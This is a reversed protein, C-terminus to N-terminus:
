FYIYSVACHLTVYMQASPRISIEDTPESEQAAGPLEALGELRM